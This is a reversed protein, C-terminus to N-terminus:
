LLHARSIQVVSRAALVAPTPLALLPGFLPPVLPHARYDYRASVEICAYGVPDACASTVRAEPVGYSNLALLARGTTTQALRRREELAAAAAASGSGSVLQYRLAARAGEAAALTLTHQTAFVLSYTVIAYFVLFFVPFLLAFEIAANGRQARRAKTLALELYRKRIM